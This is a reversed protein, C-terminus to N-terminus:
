KQAIVTTFGGSYMFISVMYWFIERRKNRFIRKAEAPTRSRTFITKLGASNVIRLLDQEKMINPHSWFVPIRAKEKIFLPLVNWFIEYFIHAYHVLVSYTNIGIYAIGGDKLVRKTEEIVSMPDDTHDLVNHILVIEFKQNKFPLGEGVGKICEAREFDVLGKFHFKYHDMLPDIGFRKGKRMFFIIGTPGCGIELLCSNDTIKHFRELFDEFLPANNKGDEKINLIEPSTIKSVQYPLEYEQAFRWRKSSM